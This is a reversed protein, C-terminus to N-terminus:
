MKLSLLKTDCITQFHQLQRKNDQEDIYKDDEENNTNSGAETMKEIKACNIKKTGLKESVLAYEIKNGFFSTIHTYRHNPNCEPACRKSKSTKTDKAANCNAKDSANRQYKSAALHVISLLFLM